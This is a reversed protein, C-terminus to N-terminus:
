LVKSQQRIFRFRDAETSENQDQDGGSHTRERDLLTSEAQPRGEGGEEEEEVIKVPYDERYSEPNESVAAEETLITTTETTRLILTCTTNEADEEEIDEINDEIQTQISESDQFLALITTKKV